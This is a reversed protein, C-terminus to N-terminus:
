VYLLRVGMKDTRGPASSSFSRAAMATVANRRVARAATLMKTALM